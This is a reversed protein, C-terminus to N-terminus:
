AGLVLFGPEEISGSSGQGPHPGVAPWALSCPARHRIGPAPACHAKTSPPCWGRAPGVGSSPSRKDVRGGGRWLEALEEENQM